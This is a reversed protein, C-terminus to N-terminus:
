ILLLIVTKFIKINLYRLLIVFAITQLSNSHVSLLILIVCHYFNLWGFWINAKRFIRYIYPSLSTNGMFAADLNKTKMHDKVVFSSHLSLTSSFL